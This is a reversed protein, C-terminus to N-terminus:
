IALGGECATNDEKNNNKPLPLTEEGTGGFHKIIESNPLEVGPSATNNDLVSPIPSNYYESAYQGDGHLNIMKYVYNGKYNVLPTGDNYKVKQYGYVKTLSPDGKSKRIGYQAKTITRGTSFEVMENEITVIAPIIIIDNNAGKSYKNRVIVMKDAEEINLTPIGVFGTYQYQFVIDNNFEGAIYTAEDNISPNIRPAINEDNWNNRQFWNDKAFNNIDDDVVVTSIIPTVIEAYDELPVINKISVASQYTGQVIALNVLNYYLDKINPNDRLERMMGIYMNEDYAEKINARLKVTKPSEQRGSSVIVLDQLMKINPYKQKAAALQNAVSTLGESLGKINLQNKAKVQVIYDLFSASLKEAVQTFKDASLYVNGAYQKIANEIVGRFEPTNFKLISGLADTARDLAKELAGLFSSNMIKSPSSIISGKEAIDTKLQKRGLDDANKFSTTDYNTAQTIEFSADAISSYILLKNLLKHQEANQAETLKKNIYFDSINTEFNATDIKAEKLLAETTKFQFKIYDLNKDDLLAARSADKGDLYSVYERIIPQNMFMAADELSIGIRDMAMFIGVVRNSRIIKLIYPDKAVDVFANAYMSLSDSIYMDDNKHKDGSLSIYQKGDIEIANHELPLNLDSINVYVQEKQTLSHGTINVAAIGVWRKGTLFAQRLSTMYNRDLLKNKIGAENEGTLGDLKAAIDKLNKDTNPSTLRDFNQPLTMLKELSRFYENELSQKYLKDALTGYDDIRDGSINNNLDLLAKIDEEFIFKKIKEKAEEGTGFFPVSKIEGSPTVYINKLYMNLKDIDFDSGAKTTIESPVIVTKGMYDPLFGKIKFVEVSNLAQTPIRFGIGRLIDTKNLYEILEEDTKFKGKPIKNRFWAPLYVEMYPDEKSYFKLASKTKNAGRSSGVKEWGTVPAQVGSFGSVKPSVISKDVMSYLMNKIQMYSTSAELPIYFEGTKPNISISDIGNESMERRLIEEKLANSVVSKDKVVFNDGLDEIGLRNTLERYGNDFMAKLINTNHKAERDAEESIPKGDKYLNVTAEKTLQSGLTQQTDKDYSNEVQIGYANWPVNITNNFAEINFDGNATYLDHLGETGVKRGSEVVAYDYGQEFMSQYLKALNTGEVAHFYIPMQSFKDLVLDFQNKNFKNGSVIPKLVEITYKPMPNAITKEDQKILAENKYEYGPLNQRTYAMHWQHFAEAEDSWQGNRLKVERYTNDMIWSAADAENTEPYFGDVVTVDKATFTKAYSKHEHYGLEGEEVGVNYTKNLWDNLGEFNMTIRRPSLFSKIRKTEDLKGKDSKFQYPDGFLMKHYEINNIMYNTNTFRIIDMLEMDTLDLKNLGAAQAFKDALEAFAFGSDKVTVKNNAVLNAITKDVTEQITDNISKFIAPSNDTIYKNIDDDTTKKNDILEQIETNLKDSLIEKFFRLENAKSGVNKLKTRNNADRALAIEDKLYNVFIDYTKDVGIGQAFEKYTIENGLNMMWETSGDAPILVYYNGELNQNIETVFRDGISLSSITKGTNKNLNKVGQIYAVKLEAIRDGEENFFRGGLKLAQSNTAFVDNLQPLLQKLEGLTDVSNFLSEIYSPANSDTYMQQRNGEINFYTSDEATSTATVYLRSIEKLSGEIGVLKGTFTMLEGSKNIGIKIGSVADAFAKKNRVKNYAEMPFDIGLEGLFNIMEKPANIKYDGKEVNYVKNVKDYTIISGPQNAKARMVETWESAVQNILSAQNAPAIYTSLENVFQALAEPKQKTFTQYFNIFLRMDDQTYDKFNIKGTSLDGGLRKFLRVYDSNERALTELKKVFTDVDLTNNLANSLTTWAKSFPVLKYGSISNNTNADPLVMTTANQQNLGKTQILTGVLLKVAYPSSKKFNVTFAESAYGRNDKNVNNIGIRSDEDFEINYTKLFIKTNEVLQNYIEESIQTEPNDGIVGDEIYDAKISDFLEKATIKEINFLSKNDGFVNAFLRATIDQVFEHAQQGNIGNIKRYEAADNKKSEPFSRDAYEGTNIAKFLDEKLSPKQVFSKFFNVISKFFRAIKEGLSRAPLKGLMYDGFDDAIREKAQADTAESYDLKKGTERDIFSGQKSKFENILGEQEADSLFGKFVGEFIEHYETGRQAGKFIKAVGNEFVGWAKESDFTNILNDLIEYPIGPVNKDAWEKFAKLDSSTIRSVNTKGVRRYEPNGSKGKRTITKVVDEKPAEEETAAQEKNLGSEIALKVFDAAHQLTSDEKNFRKAKRLEDVIVAMMAPDNSMKEITPNEESLNVITRGTSDTATTYSIDGSNAKYIKVEPGAVVTKKISQRPLEMGIMYAYKQKHTYPVGPNAAVVNTTLPTTRSAGDPTKSALLYSEYNKWTREQLDNNADVYFEIFPEALGASLTKDNVNHYVTQLDNVIKSEDNAINAFDYTNDGIHLVYGEIYIKNNSAPAKGSVDWFLVNQLFSLYKPNLTTQKNASDSLAKLVKYITTAQKENFTTNNLFELTDGSQFVPRGNPFKYNNGDEHTIYGKTVIKVLSEKGIKSEPVLIGGVSNNTEGTIALGKSVGFDFTVYSDAPANFLGNRYVEWAAAELAAEEKENFRFREGGKSNYLSAAPMTAFTVNNLDIPEGVKGVPNGDKDVFERNGKKDISIFVAGVFGIKPDNVASVDLNGAKFSMEALGTLGLAAEQNPTVLMVKINKRNKFNRVNNIFENFRTVHPALTRGEKAAWDISDSITATFLRNAAKRMEEKVTNALDIVNSGTPVTGSNKQIAEQTKKLQEAYQNMKERRAQGDAQKKIFDAANKKFEAAIADTLDKNDLSNIYDLPDEGEPIVIDNFAKKKLVSSIADDMISKLEDSSNDIDSIQYEKFQEPSLFQIDGSPLKVEYEGGLTQSLVSIKPALQLKNGVRLSTEKLSYEKGIELEKETTITKDKEKEEQQVTVPLQEEAGFEVEPKVQYNQPNDKIDDYEQMFLKRRLSMEIVHSLNTKLEDKITSRVDLENIKEIAKDTAEKNPKFTKIIGELIESTDIGAALLSDNVQPIRLDYNAIKASAYVMKDIVESSYKKSSDENTLGSYRLDLSKYLESTYNAVKEFTALREQFSQTTDNINAIGQEKLTSLGEQTSSEKRMDEIDGKIMDFRGYKIRPALYTHMLDADLDKAELKDGQLVAEQQQQQLINARNVFRMRDIFANKFSPASNLDQLFANTNATKAKYEQFNGKIQMLGGTLGGLVMSEMGEKSNLAGIGQGYKDQGFLGYLVGDVLVNANDTQFAKNYYNQTGVQLAYQLGEQAAEKPDFVYKAAGKVKDYIKGFKTTAKVAGYAGEKLAVKEVEGLLSNAVQKSSSYTSGMIKPLQIYETASLVALNGLFSAKGVTDAKQNIDDLDSGTPQKNNLDVYTKILKDRYEKATGMAEFSAEGASSYAAIATRRATNGFNAFQNTTKAIEGIESSTTSLDAISSIGKELAQAAEINKGASFARATNRLLPTFLKFGQSAEAAGALASAGEGIAAGARLLGANAINGSIMAGVAFGSNKILKDFLFNAKFWNDRSYWSSNKEADTYYNPLYEQDVKNNWTDLARMGENDWIDALRGTFPAKIAGYIMGFGGAVTTAALNVGKLLGNAAKDSVSQGYAAFDEYNPITPNYQAYRKNADLEADTVFVGKEVPNSNASAQKLKDFVSPAGALDAREVSQRFPSVSVSRQTMDFPQTEVSGIKTSLDKNFDPM